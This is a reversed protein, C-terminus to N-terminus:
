WIHHRRHPWGMEGMVFPSQCIPWNALSHALDFRRYVDITHFPLAAGCLYCGFSLFSNHAMVSKHDKAMLVSKWQRCKAWSITRTFGPWFLVVAFFFFNSYQAALTFIILITKQPNVQLANRKGFCGVSLQCCCWCCCCCSAVTPLQSSFAHTTVLRLHKLESHTKYLWFSGLRGLLQLQIFITFIM